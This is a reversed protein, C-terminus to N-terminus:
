LNNNYFILNKAKHYTILNIVGSIIVKLVIHLIFYRFSLCTIRRYLKACFRNLPRTTKVSVMRWLQGQFYSIGLLLQHKVTLKKVISLLIKLRDFMRGNSRHSCGDEYIAVAAFVCNRGNDQAQSWYARTNCQHDSQWIHLIRPGLISPFCSRDSKRILLIQLFYDKRM